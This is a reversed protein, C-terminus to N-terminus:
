WTHSKKISAHVVRDANENKIINFSFTAFRNSFSPVDSLPRSILNHCLKHNRVEWRRQGRIITVMKENHMRVDKTSGKRSKFIIKTIVNTSSTTFLTFYRHISQLGETCNSAKRGDM